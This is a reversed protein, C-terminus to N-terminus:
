LHHYEVILASRPISPPSPAPSIILPLSPMAARGNDHVWLGGQAVAEVPPLHDLPPGPVVPLPIAVEQAFFEPTM